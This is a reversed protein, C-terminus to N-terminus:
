RTEVPLVGRREEVGLVDGNRERDADEGVLQILRGSTPGLAGIGVVEDIVVLDLPAPVEGRPLLRLEECLLHPGRERRQASQIGTTSRCRWSSGTSPWRGANSPAVVHSLEGGKVRASRPPRTTSTLKPVYVQM